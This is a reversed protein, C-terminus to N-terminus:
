GDMPAMRRKPFAEIMASLVLGFAPENCREPHGDLYKGVVSCIQGVTVTSPLEFLNGIADCVGTVYGMFLSGLWADGEEVTGENIRKYEEWTQVLEYGAMFQAEALSVSLIMLLAVFGAMIAMKFTSSM